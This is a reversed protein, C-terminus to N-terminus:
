TKRNRKLTSYDVFDPDFYRNKFDEMGGEGGRLILHVDGLFPIFFVIWWTQITYIILLWNFM